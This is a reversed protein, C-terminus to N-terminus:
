EMQKPILAGSEDTIGVNGNNDKGTDCDYATLKKAKPEIFMPEWIWKNQYNRLANCMVQLKNRDIVLKLEAGDKLFAIDTDSDGAVFVPRKTPDSNSPLQTAPPEKYIVKNIWCRKGEDFTIITNTADAITGCGELNSTVIGNVIM